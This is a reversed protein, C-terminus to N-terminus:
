KNTLLSIDEENDFNRLKKQERLYDVAKLVRPNTTKEQFSPSSRNQGKEWNILATEKSPDAKRSITDLLRNVIDEEVDPNITLIEKFKDQSEPNLNFDALQQYLQRKRMYDKDAKIQEENPNPIMASPTVGKQEKFLKTAYEKATIPMLGYAGHASFGEHIGTKMTPHNVDVGGSSEILRLLEKIQERDDAM